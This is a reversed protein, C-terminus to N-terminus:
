GRSKEEVLAARLDQLLRMEKNPAPEGYSGDVVDELNELYDEIDYVADRLREYKSKWANIERALAVSQTLPQTLSRANWAEIAGAETARTPGEIECHQCYGARCLNWAGTPVLEAANGCWPCSALEVGDLQDPQTTM